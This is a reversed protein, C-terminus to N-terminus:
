AAREPRTFLALVRVGMPAPRRPEVLVSAGIVRPAGEAIAPVSATVDDGRAPEVRRRVVRRVHTASEWGALMGADAECATAVFAGLVRVVRRASVLMTRVGETAGRHRVREKERETISDLMEDAARVMRDVFDAPLGASTFVSPHKAAESAMGHAAAALRQATPKGRPLRFPDLEPISPEAAKAILAVPLM